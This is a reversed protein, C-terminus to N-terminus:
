VFYIMGPYGTYVYIYNLNAFALYYITLLAIGCIRRRARWQNSNCTLAARHEGIPPSEVDHRCTQRPQTIHLCYLTLHCYTPWIHPVSLVYANFLRRTKLKVSFRESIYTRKKNICGTPRPKKNVIKRDIVYFVSVTVLCKYVTLSFFFCFVGSLYTWQKNFKWICVCILFILSSTKGV